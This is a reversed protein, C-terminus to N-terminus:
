RLDLNGTQGARQRRMGRGARVCAPNGIEWGLRRGHVSWRGTVAAHGRWELPRCGGTRRVNRRWEAPLPEAVAGDGRGAAQGARAAPDPIVRRADLIRKIRPLLGSAVAEATGGSRGGNARRWRGGVMRGGGLDFADHLLDRRLNFLFSKGVGQLVEALKVAIGVQRRGLRPLNRPEQVPHGGLHDVGALVQQLLAYRTWAPSVRSVM